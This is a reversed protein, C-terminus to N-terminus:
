EKYNVYKRPRLCRNSYGNNNSIEHKQKNASDNFRVDRKCEEQKIAKELLESYINEHTVYSKNVKKIFRRNRSIVNNNNNLKIDYSRPRNKNVNTIIGPQWIKDIQVVVSDNIELPKLDKSHLDYKEKNKDRTNECYSRYNKFAYEPKLLTDRIPLHSKLRRGYLLQAPSPLGNRLPTNRYDLLTLYIDRKDCLSKKLLNKITQVHREIEGNSQAYRPSSTVHRIEWDKLFQQFERSVFQPGNDTYLIDPKGHRAFVSKFYDIIKSSITSDMTFLEPFKSFSDVILLYQKSSFQFFDASVIEFPREALDKNLLTERQLSNQHRICTSCNKISDTVEKIMNPWFVIEKAKATTKEIGLHSYHLKSIMSHRLSNPIVLQNGKYM